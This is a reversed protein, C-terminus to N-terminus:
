SQRKHKCRLAIRASEAITDALREQDPDNPNEWPANTILIKRTDQPDRIVNLGQDLLTGVHLTALGFCSNISEICAQQNIRYSDFVSLGDSDMPDTEGNEKVRPRRRMFAEAKVRTDDDLDFWAKRVVLRYVITGCPPDNPPNNPNTAM